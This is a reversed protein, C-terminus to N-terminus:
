TKALIPSASVALFYTFFVAASSMKEDLWLKPRTQAM